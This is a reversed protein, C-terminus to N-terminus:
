TRATNRAKDSDIKKDFQRSALRAIKKNGFTVLCDAQQEETVVDISQRPGEQCVDIQPAGRSCHDATAIVISLQRTQQRALGIESAGIPNTSVSSWLPECFACSGNGSIPVIASGLRAEELEIAVRPDKGDDAIEHAASPRTSPKQSLFRTKIRPRREPPPLISDLRDTPRPITCESGM